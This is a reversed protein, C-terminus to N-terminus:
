RFSAARVVGANSLALLITVMGLFTGTLNLQVEKLWFVSKPPKSSSAMPALTDQANRAASQTAQDSRDNPSKVGIDRCLRNPRFASADSPKLTAPSRFSRAQPQRRRRYQGQRTVVASTLARRM